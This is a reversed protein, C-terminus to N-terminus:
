SGCVGCPRKGASVAEGETMEDVRKARRLSICGRDRHYVKGSPTAYVMRSPEDDLIPVLEDDPDGDLVPVLEDDPEDELIVVLDDDPDDGQVAVSEEDPEPEDELIVVLDDDREPDDDLVAILEDDDTAPADELTEDACDGEGEEGDDPMPEESPDDEDVRGDTHEDVPKGEQGAGLGEDLKDLLSDILEEAPEVDLANFAEDQEAIGEVSLSAMERLTEDMLDQARKEAVAEELAEDHESIDVCAADAGFGELMEDVWSQDLVEVEDDAAEDTEKRRGLAAVAAVGIVIAGLMWLGIAMLTRDAKFINMHNELRGKRARARSKLLKTPFPRPPISDVM